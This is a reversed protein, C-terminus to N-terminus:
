RKSVRGERWGASQSCTKRCGSRDPTRSIIADPGANEEPMRIPEPQRQQQSKRRCSDEQRKQDRRAPQLDEPFGAADPDTRSGASSQMLFAARNKVADSQDKVSQNKIKGTGTGAGVSGHHM